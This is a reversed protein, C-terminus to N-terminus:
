EDKELGLFSDNHRIMLDVVVADIVNLIDNVLLPNRYWNYASEFGGAPTAKRVSSIKLVRNGSHHGWDEVTDITINLGNFDVRAYSDSESTFDCHRLLDILKRVPHDEPVEKPEEKTGFFHNMLLYKEDFSELHEDGVLLKYIPTYVYQAVWEENLHAEYPTEFLKSDVIVNNTQMDPMTLRMERDVFTIDVQKTETHLTVTHGIDTEIVLTAPREPRNAIMYDCISRLPIQTHSQRSNVSLDIIGEPIAPRKGTLMEYVKAAMTRGHFLEDRQTAIVQQMLVDVSVAAAYMMSTMQPYASMASTDSLAGSLAKCQKMLLQENTPTM